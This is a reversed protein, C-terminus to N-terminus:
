EEKTEEKMDEVMGKILQELNKDATYDINKLVIPYMKDNTANLEEFLNKSDEFYRAALVYNEKEDAFYVGKYNLLKAYNLSKYDESEDILEEAMYFYEYCDYYGFNRLFGGIDLILSVRVSSTKGFWKEFCDLSYDILWYAAKERELAFLGYISGGTFIIAIEGNKDISPDYKKRVHGFQELMNEYDKLDRYILGLNNKMSLYERTKDIGINEFVAISKKTLEVAYELNGLNYENWGMSGCFIAENYTVPNLIKNSINIIKEYYDKAKEFKGMKAYVVSFNNYILVFADEPFNYERLIEEAKEFDEIAKETNGSDSFIVGRDLYVAYMLFRKFQDRCDYREIFDSLITIGEEHKGSRNKIRGMLRYYTVLWDFRVSDSAKNKDTYFKIENGYKEAVNLNGRQENIIALILRAFTKTSDDIADNELAEMCLKEVEDYQSLQCMVMGCSVIVDSLFSSGSFKSLDVKKVLNSAADYKGQILYINASAFIAEAYVYESTANIKESIRVAKEAFKRANELEGLGVMNRSALTLERVMEASNQGYSSEIFTFSENLLYLAQEKQGNAAYYVWISKKFDKYEPSDEGLTERQEALEKEYAVICGEFDLNDLKKEFELLNPNTEGDEDKDFSSYKESVRQYIEKRDKWNLDNCVDVLNNAAISIYDYLRFHKAYNLAELYANYAKYMDKNEEYCRGACIMSEEVTEYFRNKLKKGECISKQYYEIAKKYTGFDKELDGLFRYVILEFYKTKNEKTLALAKKLYKRAENPQYACQYMRGLKITIAVRKEASEFTYRRELHKACSLKNLVVSFHCYDPNCFEELYESFEYYSDEAILEENVSFMDSVIPHMSIINDSDKNLWGMDIVEGVSSRNIRHYNCHKVFEKLGIGDPSILTANKLIEKQIAKLGCISFITTLHAYIKNYENVEESDFDYEHFIKTDVSEIKQEELDSLMGTLSLGSKRIAVAMLVIILTNYDVYRILEEVVEEDDSLSRSLHASFLAKCEDLSLKPLEFTKSAYYDAAMTCRTTFIVKFSRNNSPLFDRLFDDHMVNFNDVIILTKDDSLHLIKNKEKMLEEANSYNKEDIGNVPMTAVVSKLGDAYKCFQVTHYEDKYKEAFLKAIESKGLGGVGKVFVYGDADLRRKIERIEEKRGVSNQSPQWKPLDVLYARSESILSIINELKAKLQGVSKFRSRKSIQITKRFLDVLENKAQPSVGAFIENKEVDYKSDYSMDYKEPVRKYIKSFLVAGIEFVDTQVGINTWECKALEPVYFDEPAPVGLIERKRLKEISTLSDFDFLKILDKVDSLILVNKPKIDLHLFGANHYLEVAKTLSLVTKCISLLSEDDVKDYSVGYDCSTLTYATNNGEYMGIQVTHYNAASLNGSLYENIVKYTRKFEELGQFFDVQFKEPIVLSAGCREFNGDDLFAPCYEKLIGMHPINENEYYKVKYAICSGGVGVVEQIFFDKKVGSVTLSITKDSLVRRKM